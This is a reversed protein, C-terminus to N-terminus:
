ATPPSPPPLAPRHACQASEFEQREAKRRRTSAEALATDHAITASSQQAARTTWVAIGSLGIVLALSVAATCSKALPYPEEDVHWAVLLVCMGAALLLTALLVSKLYVVSGSLHTMHQSLLPLAYLVLPVQITAESAWFHWKLGECTMGPGAAICVLCNSIGLAALGALVTPRDITHIPPTSNAVVPGGSVLTVVSTRIRSTMSAEPTESEPSRISLVTDGARSMSTKSVAEVAQEVDPTPRRMTPNPPRFLVLIHAVRAQKMEIQQRLLLCSLYNKCILAGLLLSGGAPLLFSRAACIEDIDEYSYLIPCASLSLAGFILFAWCPLENRVLDSDTHHIIRLVALGSAVASIASVASLAVSAEHSPAM